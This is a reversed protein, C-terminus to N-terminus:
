PLDVFEEWLSSKGSKVFSITVSWPTLSEVRLLESNRSLLSLFNLSLTPDLLEAELHAYDLEQPDLVLYM